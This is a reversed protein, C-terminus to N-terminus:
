LIVKLNFKKVEMISEVRMGFSGDEYYGPEIFFLLQLIKLSWMNLCFRRELYNVINPIKTESCIRICKWKLCHIYLNGDSFFQGEEIPHDYSPQKGTM